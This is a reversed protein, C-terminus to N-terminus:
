GCSGCCSGNGHGGPAVRKTIAVRWLDPGQQLYEWGFAGPALQQFAGQLPKIDHDNVIEMAGGAALANFTSFILERRQECPLVRVDLITATATMPLELFPNKFTCKLHLL